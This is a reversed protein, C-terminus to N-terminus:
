GIRTLGWEARERVSRDTEPDTSLRRLLPVGERDNSEVVFDILALQILPSTQAPLSDVTARRIDPRDAFRRLADIAALRVNVNTDYRLTDLLAAVVSDDPQEIRGTWSVGRLRDAASQQQLLSLTVMQRMDRIEERLSAISPAPATVAPRASLRGATIGAVLIAAAAAGQFWGSARWGPRADRLAEDFRLRMKAPDADPAPVDALMTWLPDDNLGDPGDNQHGEDM